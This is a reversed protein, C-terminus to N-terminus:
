RYFMEEMGPVTSLMFFPCGEGKHDIKIEELSEEQPCYEAANKESPVM